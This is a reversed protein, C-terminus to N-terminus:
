GHRTRLNRLRTLSLWETKRKKKSTDRARFFIRNDGRLFPQQGIIKWKGVMQGKQFEEAAKALAEKVRPTLAPTQDYYTKKQTESLYKGLNKM